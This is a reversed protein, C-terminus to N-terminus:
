KSHFSIGYENTSTLYRLAHIASKYHQTHPANRYSALFNLATAIDPCTCTIICNILGVIIQYLQRQCLLDPDLPEVPPIPEIQLVSCYPTM